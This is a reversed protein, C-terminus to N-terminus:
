GKGSPQPFPARCAPCDTNGVAAYFGCRNCRMALPYGDPQRLITAGNVEGADAPVRPLGAVACLAADSRTHAQGLDDLRLLEALLEWRGRVAPDLRAWPGALNDMGDPWSIVDVGSVALVGRLM